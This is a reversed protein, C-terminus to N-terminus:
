FLGKQHLLYHGHRSWWTPPLLLFLPWMFSLLLLWPTVSVGTATNAVITSCSIAAAPCPYCRYGTVLVVVQDLCRSNDFFLINDVPIIFAAMIVVMLSPTVTTTASVSAAIAAANTAIGTAVSTTVATAFPPLCFNVFLLLLLPL